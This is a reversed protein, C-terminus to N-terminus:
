DGHGRCSCCGRSKSGCQGHSRLDKRMSPVIYSLEINIDGFLVSVSETVLVEVLMVVDVIVAVAVVVAVVVVVVVVVM